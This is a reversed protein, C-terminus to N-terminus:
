VSESLAGPRFSCVGQLSLDFPVSEDQPVLGIMKSLESRTYASREKKGFYIKGSQPVLIGLIIHLLTTKGSGNPGLITTVSAEPIELSIDKLVPTEENYAFNLEKIWIAM